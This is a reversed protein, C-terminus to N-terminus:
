NLADLEVLVGLVAVVDGADHVGDEAAVADAVEVEDGGEIDVLVLDAEVEGLGDEGLGVVGVFEGVDGEEADGDFAAHGVVADAFVEGGDDFFSGAAGGVDCADEFFAVDVDDDVVEGDAGFFGGLPVDFLDEVGAAGEDVADGDEDGAFFVPGVAESAGASGDDAVVDFGLDAGGDDVADEGSEEAVAADLDVAGVM